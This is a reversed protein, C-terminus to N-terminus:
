PNIKLVINIFMAGNANTPFNGGLFYLQLDTGPSAQTGVLCNGEGSTSGNFRMQYAGGSPSNFGNPIISSLDWDVRTVTAGTFNFDLIGILFLMDEIIAYQMSSGNDGEGGTPNVFTLDAPNVVLNQFGPYSLEIVKQTRNVADVVVTRTTENIVINSDTAAQLFPVQHPQVAMQFQDVALDSSRNVVETDTALRILGQTTQTSTDDTELMFAASDALRRFSNETPKDQYLFRTGPFGPQSTSAFFWSRQQRTPM